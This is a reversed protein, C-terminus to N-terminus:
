NKLNMLVILFFGILAGIFLFTGSHNYAYVFLDGVSDVAQLATMNYSM